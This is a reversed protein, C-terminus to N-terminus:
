IKILKKNNLFWLGQLFSDALDDKKSHKSIISHWNNNFSSKALIDKTVEIGIKKREAYTTTKDGIFEKLKNSSSVFDINTIDKMIFYQTIMGQVSKMRNAIPSIQNEIIVHDIDNDTIYKELEEKLAIGITVLNMSNASKNAVSDLMKEDTYKLIANTIEPKKLSKDIHINYKKAIEILTSVKTRKLKVKALDCTPVLFESKKSHIRCYYSDNKHYKAKNGCIGKKTNFGCTPQNGCLNIVEWSIIKYMMDPKTEIICCALNKIGVDISLIKM